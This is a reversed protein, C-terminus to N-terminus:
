LSGEEGPNSPALMGLGRMFKAMEDEQGWFIWSLGSRLKRPELVLM